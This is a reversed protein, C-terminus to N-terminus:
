LLMREVPNMISRLVPREENESFLGGRKRNFREDIRQLEFLITTTKITLFLFGDTARKTISRIKEIRLLEKAAIVRIGKPLTKANYEILYILSRRKLFKSEYSRVDDPSTFLSAGQKCLKM